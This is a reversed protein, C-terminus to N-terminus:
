SPSSPSRKWAALYELNGDGGRLPSEIWGLERAGPLNNLSFSLISELCGRQIRRDRIVGKGYDVSKKEAEFQPKILAVLIGGTELLDWAPNLVKTLSIFSLDMVILPFAERPLQVPTLYRANLRELNTVRPDSQLKGHLQARGVDVCYARTAGHQLLCDTFGGTSAGIDLFEMGEPNISFAKLAAELKEGGRSVFRPPAVIEIEFDPSYSKGAKDLIETGHRVKGAMILSKARSKTEVFGRHVLLDDLRLKESM